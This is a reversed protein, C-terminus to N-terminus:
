SNRDTFVFYIYEGLGDSLDPEVKVNKAQPQQACIKGM